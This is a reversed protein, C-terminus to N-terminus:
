QDPKEPGPRHIPPAADIPDLHFKDLLFQVKQELQEIRQIDEKHRAANYHIAKAFYNCWQQLGTTTPEKYPHNHPDLWDDFKIM